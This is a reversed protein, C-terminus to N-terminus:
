YNMSLDRSKTRIIAKILGVCEKNLLVTTVSLHKHERRFIELAKMFLIRKGGLIHFAAYM